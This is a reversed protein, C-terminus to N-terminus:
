RAGGSRYERLIPELDFAENRTAVEWRLRVVPDFDAILRGGRLVRSRLDVPATNLTVIQVPRGLARELAAELDLPLGALTPPPAERFLVGVDVDSDPRDTGRAVSGFLYVAAVAPAHVAFFAALRDNLDGGV